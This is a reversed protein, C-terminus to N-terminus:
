SAGNKNTVTSEIVGDAVRASVVEGAEVQGISHVIEGKANTLVAWGQALRRAPDYASLLQRTSALYTKKTAILNKVQHALHSGTNALHRQEARIRDRVAFVVTRRREALYNQADELIAETGALLEASARLVHSERWDNVIAVITEGLKTPTIASTHAALDAISQDGTHGIGTFVPKTSKAIARVLAEDDFCALDAKSGGGRVLCIIDVDSKELASIGKIIQAAALDGQVLSQVHRILFSRGSHLLQGTFDSFGETGKSAVLGVTLPVDNLQVEKNKEFIGEAQLKALLEARRKAADGLIEAVNVDTFTFGLRGQPQYIDVYGKLSVVMGAKLEIGDAALKKKLPGWGSLWCHVNVMAPRADDDDPDILDVYIHSKEYVKAIEGRIWIPHRRGFSEELYDTLLGYFERVSLVPSDEFDM